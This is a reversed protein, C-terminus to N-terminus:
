LVRDPGDETMQTQRTAWYYGMTVPKNAFHASAPGWWGGTFFSGELSGRVDERHGYRILLQRALSDDKNIDDLRNPVMTEALRLPDLLAPRVRPFKVESSASRPVILRPPLPEWSTVSPASRVTAPADAAGPEFWSSGKVM